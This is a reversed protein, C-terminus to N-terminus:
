TDTTTDAYLLLNVGPDARRQEFSKQILHGKSAIAMM